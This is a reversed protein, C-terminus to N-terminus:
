KLFVNRYNVEFFGQLLTTHYDSHFDTKKGLYIKGTNQFRKNSVKFLSHVFFSLESTIIHKLLLVVLGCELLIEYDVMSKDVSVSFRDLDSTEFEKCFSSSFKQIVQMIKREAGSKVDIPELLLGHTYQLIPFHLIFYIDKRRTITFTNKVTSSLLDTCVKTCKSAYQNITKKYRNMDKLLLAQIANSYLINTLDSIPTNEDSSLYDNGFFIKKKEKARIFQILVDEDTAPFMFDISIKPKVWKHLHWLLWAMNNREHSVSKTNRHYIEITHSFVYSYFRKESKESRSMYYAPM